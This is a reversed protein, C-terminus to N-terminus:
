IKLYCEILCHVTLMSSRHKVICSKNPRLCRRCTKYPHYSLASYSRSSLHFTPHHPRTLSDPKNASSSWTRQNKTTIYRKCKLLSFFARCYYNRRRALIILCRFHHRRRSYSTNSFYILKDKLINILTFM